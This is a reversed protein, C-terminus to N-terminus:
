PEKEALPAPRTLAAPGRMLEPDAFFLHRRGPLDAADLFIKDRPALVAAMAALSLRFDTLTRRVALWEARKAAVQSLVTERPEGASLRRSQEANLEAEDATGLATRATHWALFGDRAATAELRKRTADAEAQRVLKAADSEARRTQRLAEAEAENIARDRTQIASAVAHYSAVVEQPPHLDHFTLGDISIGLGDPHLMTLRAVLRVEARAAFAARNTTLLDLFAQGAALERLVAETSSRLVEDPERVGFRYQRPSRIHYRVSALVEILNGDGTLLLSEEPVRRVEEAHEAGWSLDRAANASEAFTGMPRRLSEQTRRATELQARDDDSLFRFGVEISRVESPAVREITEIPWPYRLHLGPPLEERIAGFRQLLGVETSGVITLGSALWAVVSVVIVTAVIGRRYRVIGLVLDDFHVHGINAELQQFQAVIPRWWATARPREFVLLRMSNLLVLLSGLQHYIVGFLPAREYWEASPAFLPWLLGTIVIGVLNVGFGFWVINQRIIAHTAQALRVLTPLERITDGMLVIQAANAALDSGGRGVAIGVAAKALAPADNIGDGVFATNEGLFEAKQAPFLGAHVEHFELATAVTNAAAARDGTLLTFKGIGASRLDALVGYADPRLTDRLGIAGLFEGDRRVYLVTQGAADLEAELADAESPLASEDELFRKTGVRYTRGGITATVGAGAHATFTDNSTPLSAPHAGLIARAIPHESAAEATAAATLLDERTTNGWPKLEAIELQGLTLTGTKDFAFEKVNALRELAAASRVVVGTGALRGLAAVMAAPTALVLPCPCAVVLVALTPYLAVRVAAGISRSAGDPRAGSLQFITNALLVVMALGLVIPLFRRALRDAYRELPAKEKLALATQAILQGAITADALREARVSLTGNQVISGAFVKAGPGVDQPLSEGTLAATDLATQGVEITGDVPVKGGPKIIVLDGIALQTTFIRVEEGDRLVWTRLPFLEALGRLARQTRDFTFAELCEGILGIVVVEAAILPEGILIAAICAIAVALDAGVRGDLASELSGYLSRAGGVVAAWLAFRIGFLERAAWSPVVGSWAAFVPWLDAVLLGGVVVTLFGVGVGSPREFPNGTADFERHM